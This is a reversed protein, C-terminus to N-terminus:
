FIGSRDHLIGLVYQAGFAARIEEGSPHGDYLRAGRIASGEPSEASFGSITEPTGGVGAAGEDCLGM